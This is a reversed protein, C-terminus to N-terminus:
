GGFFSLVWQAGYFGGWALAICMIIKGILMAALFKKPDYKMAGLLIGLVDDPLPTAAFLVIVPFAKYKEIWKRGSDLWKSYKNDKGKKDIARRSGAGVYYGVLEGIAAGVGSVIGVLWPNLMSGMLFVAAFGPLPLIVSASGILNVLFLGPYGWTQAISLFLASLDM